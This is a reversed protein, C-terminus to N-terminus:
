HVPADPEDQLRPPRAVSPPMSGTRVYREVDAPLLAGLTRGGDVALLVHQGDVRALAEVVPEGPQAQRLDSVPIGVDLGRAASRQQPPLTTLADISAVAGYGEEGWKELMLVAGPPLDSNALLADVTFWGPATVVPRMIDSVQVGDLAHRVVGARGEARASVLLFWGLVAVVVGDLNDNRLFLLYCGAAFVVVGLAIGAISAVRTALWRNRTLAWVLAHLVRGGDLPSAPIINFLALAVNIAGLWEAAEVALPDIAFSHALLGVGLCLGGVLASVVPGVGSVLLERGASRTEGEIRTMGGMIWLTIGDVELGLRRAVVAHGIEHFLVGILFLVATVAAATWYAAPSYGPHDYPFRNHALAATLGVAMVLISWNVGVRVGRIRGLSLTDRM